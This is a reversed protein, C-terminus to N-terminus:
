KVILNNKVEKVGKVAAAVKGAASKQKSTDVFGSLQVVGLVTEVSVAFSKVDDNGLLASKVKTTIVADDVYEGTSTSTSTSACGGALVGLSLVGAVAFLSALKSIQLFKKM